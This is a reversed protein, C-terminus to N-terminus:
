EEIEEGYDDLMKGWAQAYNHQAWFYGIVGAVFCIGVGVFIGAVFM